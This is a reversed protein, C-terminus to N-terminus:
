RGLSLKVIRPRQAFNWNFLLDIEQGVRRRRLCINEACAAFSVELQRLTIVQVRLPPIFTQSQKFGKGDHQALKYWSSDNQGFIGSLLMLTTLGLVHVMMSLYFELLARPM